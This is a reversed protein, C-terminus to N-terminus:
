TNIGAEFVDLEMYEYYKAQQLNGADKRATM